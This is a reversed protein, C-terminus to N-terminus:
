TAQLGNHYFSVLCRSREELQGQPNALDRLDQGEELVRWHLAGKFRYEGLSTRYPFDRLSFRPAPSRLSKASRAVHIGVGDSFHWGPSESVAHIHRLLAEDRPEMARGPLNEADTVEKLAKSTQKTFEANYEVSWSGERLVRRLTSNDMLKTGADVFNNMTATWRFYTNPRRLQQRLSALTFSLSKQTGVGTDQTLRDFCDKADTCGLLPVRCVQFWADKRTVDAGLAEALFGRALEGADLGEEVGLTEAAYSSRCVRPIRHSRFDLTNFTGLKGRMMEADALLVAYCSQSHVKTGPPGTSDGKSDVNGLAADAVVLIGGRAFDVSKFTMEYDYDKKTEVLCKNARLLTGVTPTESQLSSVQFSIDFRLQAVLWQLSGLIGKLKKIEGPTLLASPDKRRERGVVVPKLSQHYPVMSIKIEGTDKCKRIHKGCWQFDDREISGFGLVDGLALLSSEAEEDGVCLLGDVHAILMGCLKGDKESWKFWLAADLSSKQWGQREAEKSLRLYWERPADALGFVGKVVRGLCGAPLPITPGIKPNTCQIYLERSVYPDGKLFAARVDAGLLRWNPFFAGISFLLHQGLRSGTPADKRLEGQLNALDKFGPVVLRANAKLPLDREPTRLSSNKDTLVFRPRLIRQLENRRTLEQIVARSEGLSLVQIANNEMWKSWQDVAAERFEDRVKEEMESWKLEKGHAATTCAEHQHGGSPWPMGLTEMTEVVARSPLSWRGDWTGHDHEFHHANKVDERAWQVARVLPHTNNDVEAALVERTAPGLELPPVPDEVRRRTSEREVPSAGESL